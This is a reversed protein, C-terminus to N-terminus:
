KTYAKWVGSDHKKYIWKKFNLTCKLKLTLYFSCKWSYNYNRTITKEKIIIWPKTDQGNTSLYGKM